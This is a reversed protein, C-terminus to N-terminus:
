RHYSSQSSSRPNDHHNEPNHHTSRDKSHQTHNLTILVRRNTLDKKVKKLIFKLYVQYVM